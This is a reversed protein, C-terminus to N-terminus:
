FLAHLSVTRYFSHIFSHIFYRYDVAERSSGLLLNMNHALVELYPRSWENEQSGETQNYDSYEDLAAALDVTKLQQLTTQIVGLQPSVDRWQKRIYNKAISRIMMVLLKM